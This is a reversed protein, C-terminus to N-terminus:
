CCPLITAIMASGCLLVRQHAMQASPPWQDGYPVVDSPDNQRLLLQRPPDHVRKM